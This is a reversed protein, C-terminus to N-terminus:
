NIVLLKTWYVNGNISLKCFYTGNVVRNGSANRGNWMIVSEDGVNIGEGNGESISIVEQMNFDYINLLVESNNPDYYIFRVHGDQNWLGDQSTFFPNPYVSFGLNESSSEASNNWFRFVSAHDNSGPLKFVLGDGTGIFLYNILPSDYWEEPEEGYPAVSGLLLVSYVTEDLVIDGTGSDIWSTGIKEWHIYDESFYLGKESAAYVKEDDFDLNYIKINQNRFYEVDQWSMGQNDTYSISNYQGEGASWTIAWIRDLDDTLQNEIGIVWDGSLGNATTQHYWDICDENVTGRNIGNATGVWLYDDTGLVSFGKHNHNGGDSPDRPNLVYNDADILNCFLSDQEDTPLPIIEWGSNNLDFRRLGGAWSAAYIYNNKYGIDYSVNNIDTTVALSTLVQNGWQIDQYLDCDECIPQPMYNWSVGDDTSYGIGTGKPEYSETSAMYEQTVGSVAIITDNVFLAPNGGIPLDPDEVGEFSSDELSWDIIRGLGAGTSVLIYNRSSSYEIDIIGNNDPFTGNSRSLYNKDNSMHFDHFPFSFIMSSVIFYIFKNM